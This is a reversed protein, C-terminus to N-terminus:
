LFIFQFLKLIVIILQILEILHLNLSKLFLIFLLKLFLKFFFVLLLPLNLLLIQDTFNALFSLYHNCIEFCINLFFFQALDLFDLFLFPWNIFSNCINDIFLDPSQQFRSFNLLFDLIVCLWYFRDFLLLLFFVLCYLLIEFYDRLLFSM